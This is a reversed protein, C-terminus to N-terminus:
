FWTSLSSQPVSSSTPCGRPFFPTLGYTGFSCHTTVLCLSRARHPSWGLTPPKGGPDTANLSLDLLLVTTGGPTPQQSSTPLICFVKASHNLLTPSQGVAFKVPLLPKYSCRLYKVDCSTFDISHCPSTGPLIGLNFERARHKQLEAGRSGIAFVERASLCLRSSCTNSLNLCSLSKLRLFCVLGWGGFGVVVFGWVDGWLFYMHANYFLEM